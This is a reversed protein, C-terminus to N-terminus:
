FNNILKNLRKSIEEHRFEKNSDKMSLLYFDKYFLILEKIFQEENFLEKEISINILKKFLINNKNILNDQTTIRTEKNQDLIYLPKYNKKPEDIKQCDIEIHNKKLPLDPYLIDHDVNKSIPNTKIINFSLNQLDTIVEKFNAPNRIPVYLDDIIINYFKSKSKITQNGLKQDEDESIKIKLLIKLFNDFHIKKFIKRLHEVFWNYFTGSRYLNLHFFGNNKLLNNVKLLVNAPDEIHQIVGRSRVVDFKELFSYNLFNDNIIKISLNNNESFERTKRVNESSLDIYTTNFGLQAFAVADQGTGGLELIKADTKIRKYFVLKQLTKKRIEINSQDYIIGYPHSYNGYLTGTKSAISNKNFGVSDGM